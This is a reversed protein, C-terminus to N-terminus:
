DPRGRGGHRPHRHLQRHRRPRTGPLGRAHRGHRPRRGQLGRGHGAARHPLLRCPLGVTRQGGGGVEGPRERPVLPQPPISPPPPPSPLPSLPPCSLSLIIITTTITIIIIIIINSVVVAVVVVVVIIIIITIIIIYYYYYYYYYYTQNINRLEVSVTDECSKVYDYNFYMRACNTFMGRSMCYCEYKYVNVLRCMYVYMLMYVCTYVYLLCIWVRMEMIVGVHTCLCIHGRM